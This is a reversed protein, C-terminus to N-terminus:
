AAHGDLGCRRKKRRWRIRLMRRASAAEPMAGRCQPGHQFGIARPRPQWAVRIAEPLLHEPPRRSKVSADLRTRVEADHTTSEITRFREDSTGGGVRM